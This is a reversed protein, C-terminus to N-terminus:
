KLKLQRKIALEQEKKFNVQQRMALEQELKYNLVVKSVDELKQRM